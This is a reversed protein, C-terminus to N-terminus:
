PIARDRIKICIKHVVCLCALVGVYMFMFVCVCMCLCVSVCLFKCFPKDLVLDDIPVYFSKIRLDFELEKKNDNERPIWCNFRARNIVMVSILM